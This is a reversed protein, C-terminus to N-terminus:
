PQVVRQFTIRYNVHRHGPMYMGYARESPISDAVKVRYAAGYMPWNYNCECYDGKPKQDTISMRVAQVAGSEDWSVEIVKDDVRKGEEDLLTVYITHDNGSEQGADDFKMKVLKWFEQGSPVTVRDYDVQQLHSLGTPGLRSDWEVPPLPKVAAAQAVVPAAEATPPEVKVPVAPASKVPARTPRATPPVPTPTPPPVTPTPTATRPAKAIKAGFLVPRSGGGINFPLENPPLTNSDNAGGFAASTLLAYVLWLPLMIVIWLAFLSVLIAAIKNGTSLQTFWQVLGPRQSRARRTTPYPQAAAQVPRATAAPMPRVVNSSREWPRSPAARVGVATGPLPTQNRGAAVAQAQAPTPRPAPAYSPPHSGNGNSPRPAYPPVPRMPPAPMPRVAPAPQLRTGRKTARELEEAMRRTVSLALAPYRALLRDFDSKAITWLEVEGVAQLTVPYTSSQVVAQEGFSQQPGLLDLVLTQGNPGVSVQRVEGGEIIYIYNAPQGATCITEGPRFRLPKVFETVQRLESQSLGSFLNLKRLHREVFDGENGGLRNSLARSLALSLAPHHVILDDYESKYLVWLTTDDIAKAAEARTRGTLLAMEGFSEGSGARDLLEAETAADSVLKIKGSEVFYMADGPTGETYIVEGAPYHRLVLREAIAALADRNADSFLPLAHLREVATAQDESSLGESLARAFALKITPNDHILDLYDSRSLTWVSLDTVARATSSSPKGTILATQGFVDGERLDDYSEGDHSSTVLRAIGSEILFLAEASDGANFITEGRPISVFHLRSALARLEQDSLASLLPNTSLRQTILYDDLYAVRTGLGTSFKLGISPQQLIIDHLDSRSLALLSCTSAARACTSYPRNLLVDVEGVLSGAGLNALAIRGQPTEGELKVWGQVVVGLLEAPKNADFIKDNTNFELRRLHSSVLEREQESLRGFLPVQDLPQPIVHQKTGERFAARRQASNRAPPAHRFKM